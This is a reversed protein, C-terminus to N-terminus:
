TLGLERVVRRALDIQVDASVFTNGFIMITTGSDLHYVLQTNVIFASGPAGVLRVEDPACGPQDLTCYGTAGLGFYRDPVGPPQDPRMDLMTATAAEGLLEGSFMADGLTLMNASSSILGNSAWQTTRLAEDPADLLDFPLNPDASQDPVAYWGHRTPRVAGDTFATDDLGLPRIIREDIIAALDQDLLRELLVGTYVFSAGGTQGREGPPASPPRELHKALVEDPTFSRSPDALLTPVYDDSTYWNGLGSTGDLLMRVTIEDANPIEPLWREVTDDLSLQGEDVLQLAVAVVSVGTALGAEYTGGTPMPTEAHQVPTGDPATTAIDRDDVGSALHIDDHDPVRISLTAGFSGVQTRWDDLLAQLAVEDIEADVADDALTENGNGAAQDPEPGGDDGCAAAGLALAVAATLSRRLTRRALM